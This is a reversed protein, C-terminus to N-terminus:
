KLKLLTEMLFEPNNQDQMLLEELVVLSEWNDTRPFTKYMVELSPRAYLSLQFENITQAAQYLNNELCNLVTKEYFLVIEEEIPNRGDEEVPPDVLSKKEKNIKM